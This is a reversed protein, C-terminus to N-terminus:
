IGCYSSFSCFLLFGDQIENVIFKVFNEYSILNFFSSDSFSFLFSLISSSFFLLVDCVCVCVQQQIAASSATLSDNLQQLSVQSIARSEGLQAELRDHRDNLQDM